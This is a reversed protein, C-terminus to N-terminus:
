LARQALRNDQLEVLVVKVGSPYLNLTCMEPGDAKYLIHHCQRPLMFSGCQSDKTALKIMAPWQSTKIINQGITTTFDTNASVYPSTPSSYNFSMTVSVEARQTSIAEIDEKLQCNPADSKIFRM